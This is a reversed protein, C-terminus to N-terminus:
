PIGTGDGPSTSNANFDDLCRSIGFTAPTLPTRRGRQRPYHFMTIESSDSPARKAALDKERLSRETPCRRFVCATRFTPFVPFCHLRRHEGGPVIVSGMGDMFAGSGARCPLAATAKIQRKWGGDRLRLASTASVDGIYRCSPTTSNIVAFGFGASTAQAAGVM